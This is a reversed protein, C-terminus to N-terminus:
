LISLDKSIFATYKLYYFGLTNAEPNKQKSAPVSM